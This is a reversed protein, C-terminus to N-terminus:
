KIVKDARALVNPPITLSIQKATKLNILLEFKTPQEVPLDAPKAGKLIRDVYSAARRDMDTFKAGYSMLGGSELYQSQHYVVPVRRKVSLAILDARHTFLIPSTMTLVADAQNKTAAEFANGVEKFELVDIHQLQVKFSAAALETEKLVKVYGPITSDGFVAVRVLKPLIDKLIELRKGSLEPDLAALGTINGGPRSLSTVFGNGVPDNDQSMVIPITSTAEKAARTSVSSTTVIVDVKLRALEAALQRLRETRGEAYRYEIVVNKGEVYGLERLGQRFADRRAAIAVPSAPVLYGVRAIKLQAQAEGYIGFVLALLFDALIFKYAKMQDSSRGAGAREASVKKTLEL